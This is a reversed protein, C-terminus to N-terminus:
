HNFLFELSNLMSWALDEAAGPRQRSQLYGTANAREEETPLRSFFALYLEDVLAQDDSSRALRAVRGGAHSLKEQINPSNLVHLVQSVTPESVRECECASARTPRGFVKLFYHEADSDWLQIARSGKPVFRFKEDVETAACVADLLVEAELQKFPYRSYNQEDAANTDNVRSSRQYTESRTIWRILTPFDFGSAALRSSLEDLLEANTPPNTLRADDVPEILGRGLFHAWTRNALNRAFWPNEPSTLWDALLARRDGLPSHDPAPQGLAHAFVEAGTRPHSTKTAGAAVLTEGLTTTKFGVQTFFAQMGFFDEQGWRDYPHHHCQACEIRVGLFVQSVTNAMQHPQQVVKYFHGAPAEGLPGEATVLERALRDLPQHSAFSRRIWQYYEHARKHGLERRNVRLLDAWKLAWYDAFEPRRLLREVLADRREERRDTLFERAEEVTPLTGIVDLSVRRLFEADSCRASPVINLQRLRRHVHADIFNAEELAPYAVVSDARPVIARFVAVHGLYRAMVAVTGPTHGATVVGLEDVSAISEDNVQFQALSTVDFRADDSRHATVRLPLRQGMALTEEHSSLEIGLVRPDEPTGFRLGDAIWHRLTAYEPRDADIRVGGGHPTAGSAKRLLLSRDPDAPFVRRGRAEMVLARYDAPPDFGFVSLKFGNQGEAKGHCGSTNCGFRSLIPVIDYEFNLRAVAPAVDDVARAPPTGGIVLMLLLLTWRAPHPIM